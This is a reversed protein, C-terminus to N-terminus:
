TAIYRFGELESLALKTKFIANLAVGHLEVIKNM